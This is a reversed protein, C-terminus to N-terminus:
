LDMNVVGIVKKSKNHKSITELIRQEMVKEPILTFRSAQLTGSRGEQGEQLCSCFESM